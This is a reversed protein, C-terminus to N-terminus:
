LWGQQRQRRRDLLGSLELAFSAPTHSAGICVRPLAFVDAGATFGARTTLAYRVGLEHLMACDEPGFDGPGGNPYAFGLVKRNLRTELQTVSERIQQRRVEASQPGLVAHDVTHGGVEHGADALQGVEDWSMPRLTELIMPDINGRVVREPGDLATHLEELTM